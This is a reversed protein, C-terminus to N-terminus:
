KVETITGDTELIVERVRATMPVVPLLEVLRGQGTVTITAERINRMAPDQDDIVRQSGLAFRATLGYYDPMPLLIGYRDLPSQYEGGNPRLGFPDGEDYGPFVWLEEMRALIASRMPKSTARINIEFSADIEALAYLGFGQFGQPEWTDELLTPTLRAPVYPAESPLVCASPAVFKDDYSPWEEFVRAFKIVGDSVPISIGELYTRLAQAMAGRLDRKKTRSYQERVFM